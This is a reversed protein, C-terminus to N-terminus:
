QTGCVSPPGDRPDGEGLPEGLVMLKWHDVHEDASSIWLLLRWQVHHVCHQRRHCQIIRCLLQPHIQGIITTGGDCEISHSLGKRKSLNPQGETPLIPDSGSAWISIERLLITLYPTSLEQIFPLLHLYQAMKKKKM